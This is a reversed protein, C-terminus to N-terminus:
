DAGPAGPALERERAHTELRYAACATDGLSEMAGPDVNARRLLSLRAELRQEPTLGALAPEYWNHTFHQFLRLHLFERDGAAWRYRDELFWMREQWANHIRFGEADLLNPPEKAKWEDRLRGFREQRARARACLDAVKPALTAPLAARDADWSMSQMERRWGAYRWSVSRVRNTPIPLVSTRLIAESLFAGVEERDAAGSYHKGRVQGIANTFGAYAAHPHDEWPSLIRELDATAEPITRYTRLVLGDLSNAAAEQRAAERDKIYPNDAFELLWPVIQETPTKPITTADRVHERNWRATLRVDENEDKELTLIAEEPAWMNLAVALRVDRDSDHSLADLVFAGRGWFPLMHAAEIREETSFDAM